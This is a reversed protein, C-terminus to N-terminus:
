TSMATALMIKELQTWMLMPNQKFCNIINYISNPLSLILNSKAQSDAQHRLMEDADYERLAKEVSTAVSTTTAPVAKWQEFENETILVPPHTDSGSSMMLDNKYIQAQLSM